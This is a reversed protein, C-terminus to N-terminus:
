AGNLKLFRGIAAPQKVHVYLAEFLTGTIDSIGPMKSDEGLVNRPPQPNLLEMYVRATDVPTMLGTGTDINPSIRVQGPGGEKYGNLIMRVREIEPNGTSSESSLLKAAEDPHLTLNFPPYVYALGLQAQLRSVAKVADGYVDLDVTLDCDTSSGFNYLGPMKYAAGDPMWGKIIAIDEKVALAHAASVAAASDLGVGVRAYVELEERDVEYGKFILPINITDKTINVMDRSMEKPLKYAMQAEGMDILTLIDAAKIGAGKVKPKVSILERAMSTERLPMIIENDFFTAAKQLATQEAM